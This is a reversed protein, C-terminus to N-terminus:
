PPATGVQFNLVSRQIQYDFKASANAIEAATKNLQAQSLEVISVGGAHYRAEALAYAQNSHELLEQTVTMRQAASNLNLWAIRVDRIIENEKDRVLEEAAEARYGAEKQRARHLGGAYLPLSLNVGAAAYEDEFHSDHFPIVGAAAVASITPYHLAREAKSFKQAAEHQFRIERLDPRLELAQPILESVNKVHNTGLPEDQLQFHQQDKDGLLTSLRAYSAELDNQARLALLKGEDLAVKAFNVDLESKLKNSALASVQDLLLQRTAVTQTSVNLVSEARLVDFFATDVLVLIQARTLERNQEEAEARLKATRTLNATRGFDTILQSINIGEANREFIGPNSLSGAAIRTNDQSTGVATANATIQPLFASRAEATVERAALVRLDAASIRPHRTLATERAQALTLKGSDAAFLRLQILLTFAIFATRV